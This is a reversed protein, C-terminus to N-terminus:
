GVVVVDGALAVASGFRADASPAPSVFTRLLAGSTADFLYAAGANSGATGDFPAGVLVRGADAALAVGSRGFSSAPTSTLTHTLAGTSADFLLVTGANVQGNVDALPAAVALVNATLAVARGFADATAPTPEALTHLLAGTAADLLFAGGASGDFPAG